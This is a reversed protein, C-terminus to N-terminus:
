GEGMKGSRRGFKCMQDEFEINLCSLFNTFLIAPMEMGIGSASETRRTRTSCEFLTAINASSGVLVTTDLSSKNHLLMHTSHSLGHLGAGDGGGGTTTYGGGGDGGGGEGGGGM